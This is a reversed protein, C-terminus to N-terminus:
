GARPPKTGSLFTGGVAATALRIGSHMVEFILPQPKAQNPEEMTVLFERGGVQKLFKIYTNKAQVHPPQVAEYASKDSGIPWSSSVIYAGSQGHELLTQVGATPATETKGKDPGLCLYSCHHPINFLDWDLRGQNGHYNTISVIDDLVSHQSDGVAFYNTIQGHVQFRIQFILSAENRLVDGGDCHKIFPSHCFFELGDNALSYGPVVQGADTILHLRDELKIGQGTLWDKLETPKSFVRIGYGQRLRHRAETRWIEIEGPDSDNAFKELIMAAPVWLTKVKIRDGGQYCKAHDLEFFETSGDIHDRDGHTLALVDVDKRNDEKLERRLEAALDIAACDAAGVSPHQRYDFIFRLGSETKIQSTDGNGVPYVTITHV